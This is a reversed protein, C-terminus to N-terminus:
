SSINMAQYNSVGQFSGCKCFVPQGTPMDHWVRSSDCDTRMQMLHLPWARASTQRERLRGSSGLLRECYFFVFFVNKKYIKPIKQIFKAALAALYQLFPNAAIPLALVVAEAPPRRSRPEGWAVPSAASAASKIVAQFNLKKWFMRLVHAFCACFMRLVYAFCVCFVRLVRLVKWFRGSGKGM